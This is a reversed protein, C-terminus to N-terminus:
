CIANAFPVLRYLTSIRKFSYGLLADIFFYPFTKFLFLPLHRCHCGDKESQTTKVGDQRWVDVDDDASVVNAVDADFNVKKFGEVVNTFNERM